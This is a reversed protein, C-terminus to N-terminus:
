FYLGGNVNITQATVYSSMDSLLFHVVEAVECQEGLRGLLINESAKLVAKSKLGKNGMDSSIIGASLTNVRINKRSFYRAMVQSLSILGAKSVAYHPTRPGGYQGSVSGINVISSGKNLHDEIKQSLLFPGKLNTDLIQDWDSSEVKNFDTPKNIGANNVLGDLKINKKSIFNLLKEISAESKIDLKQAYIECNKNQERLNNQIKVALKHNKHYTFIILDAHESISKLIEFGIGRSAGTILINKLKLKNM